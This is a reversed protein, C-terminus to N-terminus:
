FAGSQLPEYFKKPRPGLTNTLIGIHEITCATRGQHRYSALRM